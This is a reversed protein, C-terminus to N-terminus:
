GSGLPVLFVSKVHCGSWILWDIKKWYFVSHESYDLTFYTLFFSVPSWIKETSKKEARSDFGSVANAHTTNKCIWFAYIQCINVKLICCHLMNILLIWHSCWASKIICIDPNMESPADHAFTGASEPNVGEMEYLTSIIEVM